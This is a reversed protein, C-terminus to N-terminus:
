LAAPAPVPGGDTVLPSESTIALKIGLVKRQYITVTHVTFIRLTQLPTDANWASTVAFAAKRATLRAEPPVSLAIKDAISASMMSM